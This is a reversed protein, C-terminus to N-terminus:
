YLLNRRTHINSALAPPTPLLGKGGGPVWRAPSLPPLNPDHHSTPPTSIPKRRRKEVVYWGGSVRNKVQAGEKAGCKLMLNNVVLKNDNRDKLKASAGRPARPASETGSNEVTALAGQLQQVM